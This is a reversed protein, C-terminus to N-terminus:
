FADVDMKEATSSVEAPQTPKAEVEALPGADPEDDDAAGWVGVIERRKEDFPVDGDESGNPAVSWADDDDSDMERKQRERNEWSRLGWSAWEELIEQSRADGVASVGAAGEPPLSHAAQQPWDYEDDGVEGDWPERANGDDDASFEVFKPEVWKKWTVLWSLLDTASGQMMEWELESSPGPVNLVFADILARPMGGCAVAVDNLRWLEDLAMTDQPSITFVERAKELIQEAPQAIGSSPHAPLVFEALLEHQPPSLSAKHLAEMPRELLEKPVIRQQADPDRRRFVATLTGGGEVSRGNPDPRGLYGISDVEVDYGHPAAGAECWEKWESPTWERDHDFHRFVRDTKGTPDPYGTENPVGPPSFLENYLYNPTTLLLYAPRYYGLVLPLFLQLVNEPIHEVVETSVFCEFRDLFADNLSELGGHWFQVKVEDWRPLPDTWQLAPSKADINHAASRVCTDDVDIGGLLTPYLPRSSVEPDLPRNPDYRDLSPSSLSKLLTGEGCGIDLITRISFRRLQNLVWGNREGALPPNFYAPTWEEEVISTM